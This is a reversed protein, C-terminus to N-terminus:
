HKIFKQTTTGKATKVKILYVGAPLLTINLDKDTINRMVSVGNISFIDTITKTGSHEKISIQNNHILIQTDAEPTNLGTLIAAPHLDIVGGMGSLETSTEGVPMKEQLIGTYIKVFDIYDLDVHNGAADVAWDIKLGTAEIPETFTQTDQDFFNVNNDAYGWAYNKQVVLSIPGDGYGYDHTMIYVNNPLKTGKFTMTNEAVWLPYMTKQTAFQHHTVEGENGQNDTWRINKKQQDPQPRYYTIEYNKITEPNNYESGALEYWPENPDPIGNKNLDQCVMVIGPESMASIETNTIYFNNGTTRMDYQGKVNVVSHDFTVIVYGGYGGLGLLKAHKRSTLQANAFALAKEYTDSNAATPFLRNIHQGPAPRYEVVRSIYPSNQAQLASLIGSLVILLLVRKNM